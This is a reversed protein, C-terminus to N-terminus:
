CGSLIAQPRFVFCAFSLNMWWKASWGEYRIAELAGVILPEVPVDWLRPQWLCQPEPQTCTLVFLRWGLPSELVCSNDCDFCPSLSCSHVHDHHMSGKGYYGLYSQGLILSCPPQVHKFMCAKIKIVDKPSEHKKHTPDELFKSRPNIVSQFTTSNQTQWPRMM